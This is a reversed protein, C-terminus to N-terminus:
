LCVSPCVSLRRVGRCQILENKSHALFTQLFQRYVTRMGYTNPCCDLRTRLLFRGVSGFGITTTPSRLCQRFVADSVPPFLAPSFSPLIHHSTFCLLGTTKSSQWHSNKGCIICHKLSCHHTHQLDFSWFPISNIVFFCLSFCIYVIKVMTKAIYKFTYVTRTASFVENKQIQSLKTLTM